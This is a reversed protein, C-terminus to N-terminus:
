ESFDASNQESGQFLLNKGYNREPIEFLGMLQLCFKARSPNVAALHAFLLIKYLWTLNKKGGACGELFSYNKSLHCASLHFFSRVSYAFRM